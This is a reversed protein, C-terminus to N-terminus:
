FQALNLRKILMKKERNHRNELGGGGPFPRGKGGLFTKSGGCRKPLGAGGEKEADGATILRDGNRKEKVGRGEWQQNLGWGV